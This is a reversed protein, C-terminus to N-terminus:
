SLYDYADISQGNFPEAAESMLFRYLPMHDEPPPVDGPDEGPYASARMATRTGGPNVAFTRVQSIAGLEDALTQMLGETAFKSVAYAGWYARGKRGVSSTTFLIRGADAAKLLPLLAKTLYFASNVNTNMVDLWEQEPYQEIAMKSGLASANFLVGDLRGYEQEIAYAMERAIDPNLTNLDYPFIIPRTKTNQEILDYVQELKGQTRGLLIVHAGANAYSLAAAKGIGDGAGTVLIVKDLLADEPLQQLQEKSISQM